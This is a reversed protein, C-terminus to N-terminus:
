LVFQIKDMRDSEWADRTTTLAMVIWGHFSNKRQKLLVYEFPSQNFSTGVM